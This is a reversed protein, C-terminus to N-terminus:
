EETAIKRDESEDDDDGGQWCCHSAVFRVLPCYDSWLSKHAGEFCPHTSKIIELPKSFFIMKLSSVKILAGLIFQIGRSTIQFDFVTLEATSLFGALLASTVNKSKNAILQIPHPKRNPIRSSPHPRGEEFGWFSIKRCTQFILSITQLIQLFSFGSSLGPQHPTFNHFVNGVPPKKNHIRWFCVYLCDGELM